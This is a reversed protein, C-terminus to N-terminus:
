IEEIIRTLIRNRMQEKEVEAFDSSFINDVTNDLFTFLNESNCHSVDEIMEDLKDEDILEM